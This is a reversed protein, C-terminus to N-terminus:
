SSQMCQARSHGMYSEAYLMLATAQLIGFMIHRKCSNLSCVASSMGGSAMSCLGLTTCCTSARSRGASLALLRGLRARCNRSQRTHLILCARPMANSGSISGAAEPIHLLQRGPVWLGDMCCQAAVWPGQAAITACSTASCFTVFSLSCSTACIRACSGACM